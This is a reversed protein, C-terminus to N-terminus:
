NEIGEMDNAYLAHVILSPNFRGPLPEPTLTISNALVVM